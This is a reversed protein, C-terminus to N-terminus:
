AAKKQTGEPKELKAGRSPLLAGALQFIDDFGLPIPNVLVESPPAIEVGRTNLSYRL